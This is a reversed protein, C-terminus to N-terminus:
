GALCSKGTSTNVVKLYLDEAKVLKSGTTSRNEVMDNRVENVMKTTEDVSCGMVDGLKAVYEGQGEVFDQEVSEFNELIFVSTKVEPNSNNCTEPSATASTVATSGADWITNSLVAAWPTNEFLAAGIGCDKFPNPGALTSTSFGILATALIINKM